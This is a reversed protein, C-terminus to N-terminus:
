FEKIDLIEPNDVISFRGTGKIFKGIKWASVNHKKFIRIIEETDIKSNDITLLMPGATEAACGGMLDYGMLESLEKTKHIIPLRDVIIDIDRNEVMELAHNKLGFGTVDTMSPIYEHLQEEKITKAVYYNSTTMSKVAVDIAINIDYPHVESILDEFEGRVRYAAMAAQIGLPKTIILDGTTIKPDIQKPILDEKRVLGVVLGGMIPWPNIISHGGNIDAGFQKLFDRQGKLIGETIEIPQDHPTGIFSLYSIIETSNMAFIDNTANCATIEGQIIPDDHLPTFIDVNSVLLLGNGLDKVASDETYGTLGVDTLIRKLKNASM